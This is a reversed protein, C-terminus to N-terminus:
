HYGHPHRKQWQWATDIINEIEPFEPEWGLESKALAADAVLVPPDGQRRPQLTTAIRAGTIKRAAEIVQFVSFGSGNGLNYIGHGGNEALHKLALIHARAVDVVHIYDRM